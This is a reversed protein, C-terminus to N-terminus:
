ILSLIIVCVSAIAFSAFTGMMGFIRFKLNTLQNDVMKEAFMLGYAHSIRASVFIGGLILLLYTYQTDINNELLGFIILFFPTYETFNAHGRIYKQLDEQPNDGLAVKYKNRMKIVYVSLFIFFLGLLGAFFSTIIM